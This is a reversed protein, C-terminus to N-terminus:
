TRATIEIRFSFITSIQMRIKLQKLGLQNASLFCLRAVVFETPQRNEIPKHEAYMSSSSSCHICGGAWNVRGGHAGGPRAEPSLCAFTKAAAADNATMNGSSSPLM